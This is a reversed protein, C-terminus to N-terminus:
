SFIAQLEEFRQVSAAGFRKMEAMVREPTKRKMDGSKSYFKDAYCVLKELLSEPLLDVAPLPLGGESIEAATLGSGTHREAVRAWEEPAGCERLM